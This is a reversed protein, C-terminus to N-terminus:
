KIHLNFWSLLYFFPVCFMALSPALSFFINIYYFLLFSCAFPFLFLLLSYFNKLRELNLLPFFQFFNSNWFNHVTSTVWKDKYRHLQCDDRCMEFSTNLTDWFHLGLLEMRRERRWGERIEKKCKKMKNRSRKGENKKKIVLQIRKNHHCNVRRLFIESWNGLRLFSIFEYHIM